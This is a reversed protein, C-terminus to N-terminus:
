AHCFLLILLSILLWQIMSLGLIAQGFLVLVCIILRIKTFWSSSFFRLRYSPQKCLVEYATLRTKPNRDLMKRLLDKAFDSIAPWPESDFDLKGRLIQRFIGMETEPTFHCFFVVSSNKPVTISVANYTSLLIAIFNHSFFIGAWFPPVGSLLIYLIVGASWVDAEPGYHKRLVEPAVYYPSGVVDSFTEDSFIICLDALIFLLCRIIFVVCTM